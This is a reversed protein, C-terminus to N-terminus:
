ASTSPLTLPPFTSTYANVQEFHEQISQRITDLVETIYSSINIIIQINIDVTISTTNTTSCFLFRVCGVSDAGAISSCYLPIYTEADTNHQFHNTYVTSALLADHSFSLADPLLPHTISFVVFSSPNTVFQRGIVCRVLRQFSRHVNFNTTTEIEPMHTAFRQHNQSSAVNMMTNQISNVQQNDFVVRTQTSSLCSQRDGADIIRLELQLQSLVDIIQATDIDAIQTEITHEHISSLKAQYETRLDEPVCSLDMRESSGTRCVPCRMNTTLFHLALAPAYFTHSCPLKATNATHKNASLRNCNVDNVKEENDNHEHNNETEKKITWTTSLNDICSSYTSEQMIPCQISEDHINMLKCIVEYKGDLAKWHEVAFHTVSSEQESDHLQDIESSEDVESSENQTAHMNMDDNIIQQVIRRRRQRHTVISRSM